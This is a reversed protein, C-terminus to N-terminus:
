QSLWKVLAQAKPGLGRKGTSPFVVRVKYLTLEPLAKAYQKGMSIFLEAYKGGRLKKDLFNRNELSAKKIIGVPITKSGWNEGEPEEYPLCTSGDVLTLKDTMVVTDVNKASKLYKRAIRYFLGDYREIAPLLKGERNRRFSPGLILLRKRRAL